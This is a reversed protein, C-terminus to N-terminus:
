ILYKGGHDIALRRWAGRYSSSEWEDRSITWNSHHVEDEQEKTLAQMAYWCHNIPNPMATVVIQYETPVLTRLRIELAERLNQLQSLGGLLYISRYMAAHLYKPCAQISKHIAAALGAWEAPLGVDSPHFLAEPIAFREVSMRLIQQEEKIQQKRKEEEERERLLRQRLGDEDEEEEDDEHENDNNGEPKSTENNTERRENDDNDDDKGDDDEIDEENMDEERVDEDDEDDDDEDDDGGNDQGDQERKLRQELPPPLRVTCEFINQYDPLLLDRDFPRLGMPWKRAAQMDGKFDLSVYGTQELCERLIFEQDMLNWQRYSCHFQWIKILHRGGIPVRRVVDLQTQHHNDTTTDDEKDQRQLIIQPLKANKTPVIHVASWGIDVICATEYPNQITRSSILPSTCFGVNGFGFDQMWVSMVQDLVARPCFPPMSLLVACSQPLISPISLSAEKQKKSQQKQQQLQGKTGSLKWGFAKAVDPNLTTALNVGVIDLIRKWVQVQNGLNVIVGREMSRTVGILQNPNQIQSLQDGVLVTWQQQLRATVNPISQPETDTSWGFKVTDGGNDIVLVHSPSNASKKKPPPVVVGVVLTSKSPRSSSSSKSKGTTTTEKKHSKPTSTKRRKSAPSSSTNGERKKSSRKKSPSENEGDGSATAM